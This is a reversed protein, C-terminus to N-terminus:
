MMPGPAPPLACTVSNVACPAPGSLDFMTPAPASQEDGENPPAFSFSSSFGPASSNVKMKEVVGSMDGENRAPLYRCSNVGASTLSSSSKRACNLVPAGETSDFPSAASGLTTTEAGGGVVGSPLGSM